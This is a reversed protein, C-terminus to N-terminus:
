RRLLQCRSPLSQPSPAEHSLAQYHTLDPKVPHIYQELTSDKPQGPHFPPSFTVHWSLSMAKFKGMADISESRSLSHCGVSQSCTTMYTIEPGHM